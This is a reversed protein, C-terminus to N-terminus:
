GYFVQKVVYFIRMLIEMVTMPISTVILQRFIDGNVYMNEIQKGFNSSGVPIGELM